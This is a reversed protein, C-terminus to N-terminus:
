KKIFLNFGTVKRRFKQIQGPIQNYDIMLIMM